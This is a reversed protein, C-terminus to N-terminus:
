MNRMSANHSLGVAVTVCRWVLSCKETLGEPPVVVFCLRPYEHSIKFHDGLLLWNVNTPM